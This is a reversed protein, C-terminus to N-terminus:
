RRGAPRAETRSYGGWPPSGMFLITAAAAMVAAKATGASPCSLAGGGAQCCPLGSEKFSDVSCGNAGCMVPREALSGAMRQPRGRESMISRGRSRFWRYSGDYLRLRFELDFPHGSALHQKFQALTMRRDQPHVRRVFSGATEHLTGPAHGLLEEFRPSVYLQRAELSWDFIGDNTGSIAYDYRQQSARLAALFADEKQVLRQTRLIAVVVLAIVILLTGITLVVEVQRSAGAFTASFARELSTLERDLARMEVLAPALDAANGRGSRIAAHIEQAIEDIRAFRADGDAWLRVGDAMFGVPRFRRFLDIMGTIDAPHNRAQLLGQRAISFDPFPKDLEIRASRAGALVKSEEVYRDFHDENRTLAYQELAEVAAKQANSWVSEASIYARVGRMVQLSATGLALLLVVIAVFPWTLRVLRWHAPQPPATM